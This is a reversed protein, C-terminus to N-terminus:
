NPVGGPPYLKKETGETPLAAEGTMLSTLICKGDTKPGQEKLVIHPPSEDIPYEGEETTQLTDRGAVAFEDQEGKIAMIALAKMSENPGERGIIGCGTCGVIQANPSLRRAETLIDSFNHGNSTYFIILDCDLSKEGELANELCEAIARKSNVTGTSSSFFELM